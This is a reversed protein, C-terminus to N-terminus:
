LTVLNNINIIQPLDPLFPSINIKLFFFMTKFTLLLFQM